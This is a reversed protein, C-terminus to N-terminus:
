PTTTVTSGGAKATGDGSTTTGCPPQTPSTTTTTTPTPSTTTTTTTTTTTPTPTCSPPESTTTAPDTTTTPDSSSTAPSSSSSSSAPGTSTTTSPPPSNTTSPPTYVSTPPPGAMQLQAPPVPTEPLPTVGKAYANAWLLVKAVYSNSHNYSFVAQAQQAPDSLDRGGNCLYRGAAMAADFINSPNGTGGYEVWTSPLFQMPGVARQWTPDGTLRYSLATAPIAASGNTGNLVPGLIPRLTNGQADVEGNEAQSSEIKGIGALLYWPLRCSPDTVAFTQQAKMYAQLVIGPIGLPGSPVNAMPGAAALLASQNNANHLLAPSLGSDHPSAGSAGDAPPVPKSFPSFVPPATPSSGSALVVNASGGIMSIPVALAAGAAIGIVRRRRRSLPTQYM